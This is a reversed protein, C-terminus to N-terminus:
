YEKVLKEGNLSNANVNRDKNRSLKLLRPRPFLYSLGLSGCELIKDKRRGKGNRFPFVIKNKQLLKKNFYNGGCPVNYSTLEVKAPVYGITFDQNM